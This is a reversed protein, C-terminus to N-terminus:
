LSDLYYIRQLFLDSNSLSSDLYFIYPVFSREVIHCSLQHSRTLCGSFFYTLSPSLLKSPLFIPLISYFCFVFFTLLLIISPQLNLNILLRFRFYSRLSFLLLIAVFFLFEFSRPFSTFISLSSANQVIQFYKTYDRDIYYSHSALNLLAFALIPPIIPLTIYSFSRRFFSIYLAFFSALFIGILSLSSISLLYLKIKSSSCSSHSLFLLLAFFLSYLSPSTQICVFIALIVLSFSIILSRHQVRSVCSKLVFFNLILFISASPLLGGLSSIVQLYSFFSYRPFSNGFIHIINQEDLGPFTYPSFTLTHSYLDYGLSPILLLIFSSYILYASTKKM